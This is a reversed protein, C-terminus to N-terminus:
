KMISQFLILLMLILLLGINSIGLRKYAGYGFAKLIKGKNRTDSIGDHHVKNHNKKKKGTVMSHMSHTRKM